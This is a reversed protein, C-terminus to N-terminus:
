MMSALQKLSKVPIDPTQVPILISAPEGAPLNTLSKKERVRVVAVSKREQKIAVDRVVPRKKLPENLIGAAKEKASARWCVQVNVHYISSSGIRESEIYRRAKLEALAKSIANRERSFTLCLDKQMIAVANRRNMHKMLFFLIRSALPAQEILDGLEELVDNSVQIFNTNLSYVEGTADDVVQKINKSVAHLQLLRQM